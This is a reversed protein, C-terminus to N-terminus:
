TLKDNQFIPKVPRVEKTRKIKECFLGNERDVLECRPYCSANDIILLM